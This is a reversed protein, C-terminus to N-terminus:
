NKKSNKFLYEKEKETLSEYGSKSIKDLITNIRDNHRVKEERFTDDSKPRRHVTKLNKKKFLKVVAELYGELVLTIDTGRKWKYTFVVGTLAGGLHAIHGGSNGNPINIVDMVVFVIALYKISINGLFFLNIKYNPVYTALAFLIAMVSASAGILSSNAINTFAPFFNFALLYSLGGLLGGMAYISYLKKETFYQLFIQGAFYLYLLNSLIHFLDEHTFMYTVLTWPKFILEALNVPIGFISAASFSPSQILFSFTALIKFFVFVGLNIYILKYLANAQKFKVKLDNLM